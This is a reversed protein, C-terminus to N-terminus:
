EIRSYKDRVNQSIYTALGRGGIALSKLQAVHTVGARAHDYVYVKSNGKFRVKIFDTGTEYQVVGSDGSLNKYPEM